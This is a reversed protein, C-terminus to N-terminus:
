GAPAAQQQAEALQQAIQQYAQFCAPSVEMLAKQMQNGDNDFAMVAVPQCNASSAFLQVDRVQAGYVAATNLKSTQSKNYSGIGFYLGMGVILVCVAIVAIVFNKRYNIEKKGYVNKAM